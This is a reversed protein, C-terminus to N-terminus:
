LKNGSFMTHRSMASMGSWGTALFHIESLLLTAKNCKQWARMRPLSRNFDGSIDGAKAM